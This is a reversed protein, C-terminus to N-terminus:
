TDTTTNSTQYKGKISMKVSQKATQPSQGLAFIKNSSKREKKKKM